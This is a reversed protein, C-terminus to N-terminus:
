RKGSDAFPASRRASRTRIGGPPAGSRRRARWSAIRPERNAIRGGSRVSRLEYMFADLTMGVYKSFETPADAIQGDRVLFALAYKRGAAALGPDGNVITFGHGPVSRLFVVLEQDVEYPLPAGSRQNELLVIADTPNPSQKIAHLVTAAHPYYLGPPEAAAPGTLRVHLVADAQKVLDALTGAILVCECIPSITMTADLLTTSDPGVVVNDRNFNTFGRLRITVRYSGPKVGKLEYCGSTNAETTHRLEAGTAAVTVGPLPKHTSDVVCGAITGTAQPIGLAVTLVILGPVM